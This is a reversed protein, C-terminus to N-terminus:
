CVGLGRGGLCLGVLGRGLGLFGFMGGLGMGRGMGLGAGPSSGDLVVVSVSM